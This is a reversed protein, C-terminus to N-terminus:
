SHSPQETERLDHVPVPQPELPASKPTSPVVPHDSEPGIDFRAVRIRFAAQEVFTLTSGNALHTEIGRLLDVLRNLTRRDRALEHRTHNLPQLWYGMISVASVVTLAAVFYQNLNQIYGGVFLWVFAIAYAFLAAVMALKRRWLTDVLERCKEHLSDAVRLMEEVDAFSKILPPASKSTGNSDPM